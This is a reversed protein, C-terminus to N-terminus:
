GINEGIWEVGTGFHAAIIHQAVERLKMAYGENCMGTLLVRRRRELVQARKTVGDMRHGDGTRAKSVGLVQRCTYNTGFRKQDQAVIQFGHARFNGVDRRLLMKVRHMGILQGGRMIRKAHGVRPAYQILVIRNPGDHRTETAILRQQGLPEHQFAFRAQELLM